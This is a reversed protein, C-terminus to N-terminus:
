NQKELSLASWKDFDRSPNPAVCLRTPMTAEHNGPFLQPSLRNMKSEHIIQAHPNVQLSECRIRGIKMEGKGDGLM